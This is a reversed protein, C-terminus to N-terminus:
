RHLLSNVGLEKEYKRVLNEPMYMPLLGWNHLNAKEGTMIYKEAMNQLIENINTTKYKQLFFHYAISDKDLPLFRKGRLFHAMHSNYDALSLINPQFGNELCYKVIMKDALKGVGGIKNDNYNKLYDVVVRPDIIGFEPYDKILGESLYFEDIGINGLYKSFAVYGYEKTLDQSMFHYSHQLEGCSSELIVTKVPTENRKDKLCGTNEPNYKLKFLTNSSSNKSNNLTIIQTSSLNIDIIQSCRSNTYPNFVSLAVKQLQNSPKFIDCHLGQFSLKNSRTKNNSLNNLYHYKVPLFNIIM